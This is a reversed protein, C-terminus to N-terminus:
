AATHFLFSFSGVGASCGSRPWLSKQEKCAGRGGCAKRGPRPARASSQAGPPSLEPVNEAQERGPHQNASKPHRRLDASASVQTCAPSAGQCRGIAQRPEAAAAAREGRGLPQENPPVAPRLNRALALELPSRRPQAPSQLSKKKEGWSNIKGRLQWSVEVRLSLDPNISGWAAADVDGAGAAAIGLPAPAQGQKQCSTGWPNPATGGGGLHGSSARPLSPAEARGCGESGGEEEGQKGQCSRPYINLCSKLALSRAPLIRSRKGKM